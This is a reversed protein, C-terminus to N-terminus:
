FVYNLGGYFRDNARYQNLFSSSGDENEVGLVDAGVIFGWAPTPYYQFETGVLTGKQIFDHMYTIQTVLPKEKFHVLPGQVQLLVSDKFRMREDFLTFDDTSGDAQIDVVGGGEIKLYGVRTKLHREFVSPFEYDLNVSYAKLPLAKQIVWEGTPRKEQPRDEIYSVFAKTRGETFGIDTSAIAHYAADPSVKANIVDTTISKFNQRRLVLENMPKYATSGVFWVGDKKDGYQYSAGLSTKGVLEQLNVDLNYSITNIRSNFNFKSSPRRYWRSDSVLSGDEERVDPGISPIFLSSGFLMLKSPGMQHEVFLGVLGQTEPRLLDLAYNPQWLALNWRSDMESWDMVKRGLHLKTDESLSYSGYIEKISYNSQNKKFFTGATFDFGWQVNTNKSYTAYSSFQASLYNSQNLQPSEPLSTAYQINEFRLVGKIPTVLTKAKFTSTNAPALIKSESEAAFSPLSVFSFSVCLSTVLRLMIVRGFNVKNKTLYNSSKIAVEVRFFERM